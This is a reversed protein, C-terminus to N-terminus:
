NTLTFNAWAATFRTIKIQFDKELGMFSKM